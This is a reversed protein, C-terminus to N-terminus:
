TLLDGQAYRYRSSYEEWPEAKKRRGKIRQIM